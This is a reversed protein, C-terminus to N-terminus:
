IDKERKEENRTLIRYEYLVTSAAASAATEGSTSPWPMTEFNTLIGMRGM